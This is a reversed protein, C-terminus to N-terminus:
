KGQLREPPELSSPLGLGGPFGPPLVTPKHSAPRVQGNAPCLLACCMPQEHSLKQFICTFMMRKMATLSIPFVRRPQKAQPPAALVPHTVQPLVPCLWTGSFTQIYKTGDM